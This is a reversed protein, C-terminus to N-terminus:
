NVWQRLVATRAAVGEAGEGDVVLKGENVFGIAPVRHKRLAALLKATTEALAAPTNSVLGAPPGPLDDITVAITRVQAEKSGYADGTVLLGAVVTWVLIGFRRRMM